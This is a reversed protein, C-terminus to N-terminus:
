AWSCCSCCLLSAPLPIEDSASCLELPLLGGKAPQCSLGRCAAGVLLSPTQQYFGGVQLPTGCRSRRRKRRSSSRAPTGAAGFVRHLPRLHNDFACLLWPGCPAHVAAVAARALGTWGLRRLLPPMSHQAARSVWLAPLVATCWSPEMPLACPAACLPCLLVHVVVALVACWDLLRADYAPCMTYSRILVGSGDEPLSFM